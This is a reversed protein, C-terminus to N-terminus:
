VTNYLSIFEIEYFVEGNGVSSAALTVAAPIEYTTMSRLIEEFHQHHVRLQEHVSISDSEEQGKDTTVSVESLEDEEEEVERGNSTGYWIRLM